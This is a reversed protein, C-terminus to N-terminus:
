RIPRPLLSDSYRGISLGRIGSGGALFDFWSVLDDTWFIVLFFAGEFHVFQPSIPWVIREHLTYYSIYIIHFLILSLPGRITTTSLIYNSYHYYHLQQPLTHYHNKAFSIIHHLINCLHQAALLLQQTRLLEGHVSATLTLVPSALLSSRTASRRIFQILEVLTGYQFTHRSSLWV